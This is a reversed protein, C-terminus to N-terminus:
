LLCCEYLAQVTAPPMCIFPNNTFVKILELSRSELAKLLRKRFDLNGKAKQLLAYTFVGRRAAEPMASSTQALQTLLQQIEVAVETYSKPEESLYSRQITQHEAVSQTLSARKQNQEPKVFDITKPQALAALVSNNVLLTSAIALHRFM